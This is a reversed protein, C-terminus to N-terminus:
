CFQASTTHIYVSVANVYSVTIFVYYIWFASCIFIWVSTLREICALLIIVSLHFSSGGDLQRPLGHTRGADPWGVGPWCGAAVSVLQEAREGGQRRSGAGM